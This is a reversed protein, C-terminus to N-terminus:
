LGRSQKERTLGGSHTHGAVRDSGCAEAQPGNPVVEATQPGHALVQTKGPAPAM